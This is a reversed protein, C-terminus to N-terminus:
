RDDASGRSLVPRTFMLDALQAEPVELLFPLIQPGM